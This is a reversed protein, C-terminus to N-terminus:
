LQGEHTIYRVRRFWTLMGKREFLYFMGVAFAWSGVEWGDGWLTGYWHTNGTYGETIPFGVLIWVAYFLLMAVLYKRPQYLGLIPTFWLLGLTILEGMGSFHDVSGWQFAYYKWWYVLWWIGEHICWALVAAYTAM